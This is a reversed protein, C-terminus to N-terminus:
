YPQTLFKWFFNAPLAILRIRNPARGLIPKRVTVIM